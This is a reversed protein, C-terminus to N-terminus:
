ALREFQELPIDHRLPKGACWCELQEIVSDALGSVENGISGAIHSSLRVNPLDYLPSGEAPPEPWTVDLLATLDPRNHLAAILEQEVVQAGRGTNIFTAGARMGAFLGGRLLGRTDPTDPLHNSVVLATSFAQELSVRTVGLEGAEAHALFPDVVLVKLNHTQLMPILARGVAGAGILAVTEDHIGPGHPAGAYAAPSTFASNNAFFGKCSLLIQGLCFRAVPLANAERASVVTIGRELFPRAFQRVSGAAYFLARLSPLRALHTETLAPMGWTGIIVELEQLRPTLRDFSAASVTEDVVLECLEGIRERRGQAFVRDIESLGTRADPTAFFAGKPKM